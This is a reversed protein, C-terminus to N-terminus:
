NVICRPGSGDYDRCGDTSSGGGPVGSRIEDSTGYNHREFDVRRRRIRGRAILAMVNSELIRGEMNTRKYRPSCSSKDFGVVKSTM